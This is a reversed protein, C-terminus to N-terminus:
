KPATTKDEQGTPATPALPEGEVGRKRIEQLKSPAIRPDFPTPSSQSTGSDPAITLNDLTPEPTFLGATQPVCYKYTGNAGGVCQNCDRLKGTGRKCSTGNLSCSNVKEWQLVPTGPSTCTCVCYSRGALIKIPAAQAGPVCQVFGWALGSLVCLIIKSYPKLQTKM